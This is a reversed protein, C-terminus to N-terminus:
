KGSLEYPYKKEFEKVTRLDRPVIGAICKEDCLQAYENGAVLRRYRQAEPSNWLEDISGDAITGIYTPCWCGFQVNGFTGIVMQQWPLHCFRERAPVAPRCGDERREGGPSGGPETSYPLCDFLDMRYEKAKRRLRELIAKMEVAVTSNEAGAAYIDEPNGPASKLDLLLMNEFDYERAMDLLKELERYNSRMVVVNMRLTIGKGKKKAERLLSLVRLLDEFRAGKRIYEYTEKTAADISCILEINNNALKEAWFEDILLTNTTIRQALYPYKRTEDLLESFFPSLFVEGGQWIAHELYPLHDVIERFTKEPLTWNGHWGDCMICRLNCRSTLTGILSTFRSSLYEKGQAIEERNLKKNAIFKEV